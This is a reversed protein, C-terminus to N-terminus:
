LTWFMPDLVAPDHSFFHPVRVGLNARLAEDYVYRGVVLDLIALGFPSFITIDASHAKRPAAGTLVDGLTARIFERNGSAQQALDISTRAACVHAVDDVVNDSALIVGPTIDRLSTHLVLTGPACLELSSVHPEVATTAFSVLDCARLLEDLSAAEVIAIPALEATARRSFSQARTQDLDFVMFRHDCPFVARLFRAQEFNIPGCGVLGTAGRDRTRELSLAALAGCAATRRFNILSGEVIAFPQGTNVSNLILLASCRNLARERNGPFSSVWKVGAIGGDADLRAPKAIIRDRPDAFRLFVSEPVSTHGHEHAILAARVLEILEREHGELVSAVVPGGLVLPADISDYSVM